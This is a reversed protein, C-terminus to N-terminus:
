EAAEEPPVVFWVDGAGEGRAQNFRFDRIFFYLPMGNYTVQMTGDTRETVGLEGPLGEEGGAVPEGGEGVLLPPWNVACQEYCNSVNEEDQTYLYLTMGQNTLIPGLTPHETIDIVPSTVAMTSIDPHLVYWVQGVDQGTAQGPRSDNIWFYLPMRNYTVQRSGDTRETVSLQGPLGESAVPEGNEPVLLPPWNVACQEYCNSVNEGDRTYLYLTMGQMTLIQGLEPHETVNIVPDNVM